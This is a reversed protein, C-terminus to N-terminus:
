YESLGWNVQGQFSPIRGFIEDTLDESSWSLDYPGIELLAELNEPDSSPTLAVPLLGQGDGKDISLELKYCGEDALSFWEVHTRRWAETPLPVPIAGNVEQAVGACLHPGPLNGSCAAGDVPCIDLFFLTGPEGVFVLPFELDPDGTPNPRAFRPAELTFPLFQQGDAFVIEKKPPLDDTPEVKFYQFGTQALQPHDTGNWDEVYTLLADLVERTQAQNLPPRQEEPPLTADLFRRGHGSRAEVQALVDIGAAQLKLAYEIKLPYPVKDHTGIELFVQTDMALLNDLFGDSAASAVEDVLAEDDAGTRIRFAAQRIDDAVGDLVLAARLDFNETGYGPCSAPYEWTPLWASHMGTAEANRLYTVPYTPTQGLDNFREGFWGVTASVSVFRTTYGPDLDLPNAAMAAAMAGSRSGGYLFLRDRDGGFAEALDVVRGFQRYATTTISTSAEAGGGNWLIGIAGSRPEGVDDLATSEGVLSALYIGESSIEDAPIDQDGGFLFFWENLDSVGEIIVPYSNGRQWGAPLLVTAMAYVEEDDPEEPPLVVILGHLAQIAAVGEAVLGRSVLINVDSATPQRNCLPTPGGAPTTFLSESVFRVPSGTHKLVTECFPVVTQATDIRALAFRDGLYRDATPYFPEGGLTWMPHCGPADPDHPLTRPAVGFAGCQFDGAAAGFHTVIREGGQLSVCDQGLVGPGMGAGMLIIGGFVWLGRWRIWRQPRRAGQKADRM